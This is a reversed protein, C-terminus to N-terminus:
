EGHAGLFGVGVRHLACSEFVLMVWGGFVPDRRQEAERAVTAQLEVPHIAAQTDILAAGALPDIARPAAARLVEELHGLAAGGGEDNRGASKRLEDCSSETCRRFRRDRWARPVPRCSGRAPARM